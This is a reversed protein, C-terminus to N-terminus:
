LIMCPLTKPGFTHIAPNDLEESTHVQVSDSNGRGAGPLVLSTDSTLSTVSTIAPSLSYPRFSHDEQMRPEPALYKPPTQHSGTQQPLFSQVNNNFLSRDPLNPEITNTSKYKYTLDPHGQFFLPSPPAWHPRTETLTPSCTSCTDSCSAVELHVSSYSDVPSFAFHSPLGTSKFAGHKHSMYRSILSSLAKSSQKGSPPQLVFPQIPLSTPRKPKTYHVAEPCSGPDGPSIFVCSICKTKEAVM